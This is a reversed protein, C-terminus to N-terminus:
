ERNTHGWWAVRGIVTVESMQKKETPHLKNESILLLEDSGAREIRKVRADGDDVIAYIPAPRRDNYPRARMPPVNKATDILILDGACITPEMSDGIVRALRAKNPSIGLKRLWDRRFALHEVVEESSNDAGAGAALWAEHLPIEAYEENVAPSLSDQEVQRPPGVYFELGLVDCLAVLNEMTPLGYRERGMNSILYRNGVARESAEVASLGKTKLQAKIIELLQDKDMNASTGVFACCRLGGSSMHCMQWGYITAHFGIIIDRRDCGQRVSKRPVPVPRDVRDAQPRGALPRIDSIQCRATDAQRDPATVADNM